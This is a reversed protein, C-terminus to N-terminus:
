EVVDLIIETQKLMGFLPTRKRYMTTSIREKLLDTDSNFKPLKKMEILVTKMEDIDLDEVNTDKKDSLKYYIATTSMRNVDFRKGQGIGIFFNEEKLKSKIADIIFEPSKTIYKKNFTYYGM